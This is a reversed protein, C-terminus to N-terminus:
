LDADRAQDGAVLDLLSHADEVFRELQVAISLHARSITVPDEAGLRGV